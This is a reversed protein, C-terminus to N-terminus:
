VLARRALAIYALRWKAIDAQRDRCLDSRGLEELGARRISLVLRGSRRSHGVTFATSALFFETPVIVGGFLLM